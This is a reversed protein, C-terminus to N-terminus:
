LKTTLIKSLNDLHKKTTEINQAYEDVRSGFVKSLQNLEEVMERMQVIAMEQRMVWATTQAEVSETVADDRKQDHLIDGMGEDNMSDILNDKTYSM